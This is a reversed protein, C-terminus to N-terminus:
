FELAIGGRLRGTLGYFRDAGLSTFALAPGDLSWRGGVDVFASWGEFFNWAGVVGLGVTPSNLPERDGENEDGLVRRLIGATAFPNVEFSDIRFRYGGGAEVSQELLSVDRLSGLIRYRGGSVNAGATFAAERGLWVRLGTDVGAFMSLAVQPNRPAGHGALLAGGGLDLRIWPASAPAPTPTPPPPPPPPPPPEELAVPVTPVSLYFRRLYRPPKAVPQDATAAVPSATATAEPAAGASVPTRTLRAWSTAFGERDLVVEFGTAARLAGPVIPNDPHPVLRLHRELLAVVMAADPVPRPALPEPARPSVTSPSSPLAQPPPAATFDIDVAIWLRGTQGTAVFRHDEEAKRFTSVVVASSAMQVDIDDAARWTGRGDPILSPSADHEFLSFAPRLADPLEFSQRVDDIRGDAVVDVSLEARMRPTLVAAGSGDSFGLVDGDLKPEALKLRVPPIPPLGLRLQAGTSGRHTDDVQVTISGTMDTPCDGAVFVDVDVSIPQGKVPLEPLRRSTGDVWLCPSDSKARASASFWPLDGRNSVPITLRVWEQGDIIGNGAGGGGVEKTMRVGAADLVLASTTAASTLRLPPVPAAPAVSPESPKDSDGDEDEMASPSASQPSTMSTRERFGLWRDLMSAPLARTTVEKVRELLADRRPREADPLNQTSRLVWEEVSSHLEPADLLMASANGSEAAAFRIGDELTAILAQVVEPRIGGSRRAESNVLRMLADVRAIEPTL